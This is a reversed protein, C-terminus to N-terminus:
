LADKKKRSSVLKSCMEYDELNTFHEMLQYFFDQDEFLPHKEDFDLSKHITLDFYDDRTLEEIEYNTEQKSETQKPQHEVNEKETEEIFTELQKSYKDLFKIINLQIKISDNNEELMKKNIGFKEDLRESRNTSVPEQLIERVGKENQHIIGLNYQVRKKLLEITQKLQEKM